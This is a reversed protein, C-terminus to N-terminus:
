LIDLAREVVILIFVALLSLIPANLASVLFRLRPRRREGRITASGVEKVLLIVVLIIIITIQLLDGALEAASVVAPTPVSTVM